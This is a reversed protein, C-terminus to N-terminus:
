KGLMGDRLNADGTFADSELLWVAFLAKKFKPNPITDIVTGNISFSVGEGPLYKYVWVDNKKADPTFAIFQDIEPKLLDYDAGAAYKMGEAFVDTIKDRPGNRKYTMTIAM